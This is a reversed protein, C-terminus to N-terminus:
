RELWLQRLPLEVVYPHTLHLVPVTGSVSELLVGISVHLNQVVLSVGESHLAMTREIGRMMSRSGYPGGRRRPFEQPAAGPVYLTKSAAAASTNGDKGDILWIVNEMSEPETHYWLGLIGGGRVWQSPKM